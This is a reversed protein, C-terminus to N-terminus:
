CSVPSIGNEWGAASANVKSLWYYLDMRLIRNGHSFPAQTFTLILARRTGSNRTPAERELPRSTMAAKQLISCYAFNPYGAVLRFQSALDM